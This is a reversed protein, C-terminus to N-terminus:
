KYNSEKHYFGSLINRVITIGKTLNSLSILLILLIGVLSIIYYIYSQGFRLAIVAIAVLLALPGLIKFYDIKLGMIRKADRFRVAMVILYGLMTGTAVGYLGFRNVLLFNFIINAVAGIMTTLFVRNSLKYASYAVGYFSSYCSIVMAISLFPIFQWASIFSSGILVKFVPKVLLIIFSVMITLSTSVMGFVNDYYKAIDKSKMEEITSIQWASIFTSYFLNIITPIKMALSYIGNGDNGLYFNIIYKDGANMIWWMLTNPILPVSYKLMQKLIGFDIYKLSLKRLIQGSYTIYINSVLQSIVIAYLYGTVGMKLKLLFLLNLLVVCLTSVIGNISYSFNKGIVRLYHSFISNYSLLILYIMFLLIYKNDQLIYKYTPFLLISIITGIAYILMSNNLIYCSDNDNGTIFRIIAENMQLTLFPIILGSATTFLDIQGYEATTLIYTYLPVVLFTIIKSGLAGLALAGTNRVLKKYKFNM